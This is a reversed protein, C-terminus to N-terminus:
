SAGQCFDSLDPLGHMYRAVIQAGVEPVQDPAFVVAPRPEGSRRDLPEDYTWIGEECPVVEGDVSVQLTALNPEGSLYYINRMRSASLSLEGAIDQFDQSCIDGVVGGSQLAVDIYREGRRAQSSGCAEADGVVLASANYALRDGREKVERFANVYEHVPWPSKDDEDSVFVLTLSAYDRLFGANDTSILPETLALRAMELGREYRSGAIGVSVARTFAGEPNPTEPTMIEGQIRGSKSPDRADTTVVAIQYDIGAGVFWRIFSAFSAGLASQHPAMSCSDDIVLLVDVAGSPEQIWVDAQDLRTFGQDSCGILAAVLSLLLSRSM